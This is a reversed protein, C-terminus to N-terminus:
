KVRRYGTPQGYLWGIREIAAALPERAVSMTHGNAHLMSEGDEMIGVHGKWFVLDGRRADAIAIPMGLARAMMDTDRPAAIGCAALSTQVLGSCDLGAFTKGGWVYPVGIFREAVAVFDSEANESVHRSHLFRGSAIEVYEGSRSLVPVAANMPLMDQVPTKLDPAPFVPAMPVGVRLAPDGADGLATERLYGVYGDAAAQVWAWGDARDYVRVQEGFLLESDQPADPSPAARLSARGVVIAASAGDTFRAADVQGRLSAAALDPRFANIRRDFAM